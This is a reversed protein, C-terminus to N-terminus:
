GNGNQWVWEIQFKGSLIERRLTRVNTGYRRRLFMRLAAESSFGSDLAICYAGARLDHKMLIIIQEYRVEKLIAGPTKDYRQLVIRYLTRKTTAAEKAWDKVSRIRSIKNVLIGVFGEARIGNLTKSKTKGDRRAMRVRKM